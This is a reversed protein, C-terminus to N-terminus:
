SGFYINCFSVPGVCTSPRTREGRSLSASRGAASSGQMDPGLSDANLQEQSDAEQVVAPNADPYATDTIGPLGNNDTQALERRVDQRTIEQASVNSVFGTTALLFVSLAAAIRMNM